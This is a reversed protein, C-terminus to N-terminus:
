HEFHFWKHDCAIYVIPDFILQVISFLLNKILSFAEFQAGTVKPTGCPDTGPGTSNVIDM